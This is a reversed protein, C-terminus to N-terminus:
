EDYGVNYELGVEYLQREYSVHFVMSFISIGWFLALSILRYHLGECHVLASKPYIRNSSNSWSLKRQIM